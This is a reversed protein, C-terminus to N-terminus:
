GGSLNWRLDGSVITADSTTIGSTSGAVYALGSPFDDRIQTISQATAANNTLTVTYTYTTNVGAAATQPSVTKSILFARNKLGIPDPPFSPGSIRTVTAAITQGNLSLNYNNVVGLILSDAYGAEHSLRYIGHQVGGTVGYDSKAMRTKVNSDTALTSGLALASTVIPVVLGLSALAMILGVGRENRRSEHELVPPTQHQM